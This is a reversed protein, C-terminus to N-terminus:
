RSDGKKSLTAYQIEQLHTVALINIQDAITLGLVPANSRLHSSVALEESEM